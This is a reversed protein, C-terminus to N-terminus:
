FNTEFIPPKKTKTAEWEFYNNPFFQIIDMEEHADFFNKPINKVLSYTLIYRNDWWNSGIPSFSNLLLLAQEHTTLQARITKAYEYKNIDVTQQDVYSISQYLHRYYHGLRSQHGEFPVYTFNRQKQIISKTVPNDLENILENIFSEDFSQLAEKLM